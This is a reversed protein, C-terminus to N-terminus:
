KLISTMELEKYGRIIKLGAVPDFERATILSRKITFNKNKLQPIYNNFSGENMSFSIVFQSTSNHRFIEESLNIKQPYISTGSVFNILLLDISIDYMFHNNTAEGFLYVINRNSNNKDKNTLMSYINITLPTKDFKNKKKSNLDIQIEESFYTITANKFQEIRSSISPHDGYSNANINLPNSVLASLYLKDLLDIMGINFKPENVKNFYMQAYIDAEEELERSYGVSAIQNSITGISAMISTAFVVETESGGTAAVALGVALSALRLNNEAKQSRILEKLGHRKEVHAVEHALLAILEQNSEIIDLLGDNVYINGGPAASANPNSDNIVQVRYDYGKPEEIWNAVIKEVIKQLELRRPHEYLIDYSNNINISINNSLKMELNYNPIKPNTNFCVNCLEYGDNIAEEKSNYLQSSKNNHAHEFIKLHLKNSETNISFEKPYVLSGDKTIIKELRIADVSSFVNNKTNYFFKTKTTHSKNIKAEFISGDKLFFYEQGFLSYIGFLLIILRKM